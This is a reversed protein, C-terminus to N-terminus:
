RTTPGFRRGQPYVARLKRASKSANFRVVARETAVFASLYAPGKETLAQLHPRRARATSPLARKQATSPTAPPSATWTRAPSGWTKGAAFYVEGLVAPLRAGNQRLSSVM